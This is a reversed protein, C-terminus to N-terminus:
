QYHGLGPRAFLLSVGLPRWELSCTPWIMLHALYPSSRPRWLTAIHSATWPLIFNRGTFFYTHLVWFLKHTKIHTHRRTHM